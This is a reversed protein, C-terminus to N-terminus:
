VARFVSLSTVLKTAGFPDWGTKWEQIEIIAPAKGNDFFWSDVAFSQRSGNERIVATTHPLGAFFGFSTARDAVSHHQLLGEKALMNMYTTTNTSEDICDMQAAQGFGKLNGGKDAHTGTLNGVVVEMNSVATAIAAREDSATFSPPQLPSIIEDWDSVGLSLTVVTQCSHDLCVSFRDYTPATIIDDRM